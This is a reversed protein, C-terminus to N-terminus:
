PFVIGNIGAGPDNYTYFGLRIRKLLLVAVIVSRIIVNLMEHIGLILNYANYASDTTVISVVLRVLQISFLAMGSEILIFIIYRLTSGGTVGLIQDDATGTKVQCFVRFIRFVILGTVLANVTMSLTLGTMVLNNNWAPIFMKDQVVLLPAACAAIWIVLFWGDNFGSLSHLYISPGLFAFALVSPLIVVRINYGWVIWCRYIKQLILHILYIISMVLSYTSPYISRHFRLLFMGYRPYNFPWASNQHEFETCSLVLSFQFFMPTKSVAGISFYLIDIIIIVASLAYLVWLAHFLIGKQSKTHQLYM